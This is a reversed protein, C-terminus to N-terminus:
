RRQTVHTKDVYLENSLTMGEGGREAPYSTQVEGAVVVQLWFGDLRPDVGTQDLRLPAGVALELDLM